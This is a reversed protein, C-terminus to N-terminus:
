PSPAATPWSSSSCSTRARVRETIDLVTGILRVARGSSDFFARGNSSLWREIGDELGVTRYDARYTHSGAPDLAQLVLQHARERDDPHLASLFTDYDKVEADPPLGFLAKCREDWSLHGTTPDYDWTGLGTAEVALRLREESL